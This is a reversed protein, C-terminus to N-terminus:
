QHVARVGHWLTRGIAQYVIREQTDRFYNHVLYFVISAATGIFLVVKLEFLVRLQLQGSRDDKM